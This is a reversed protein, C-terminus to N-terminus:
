KNNIETIHLTERAIMFEEDTPVVLVRVPSGPKSIGAEIGRVLNRDPDLDIGLWSLLECIGARVGPSNEGIGGTFVLLDLGGLAPLLSGISGAVRYNFMELALRSQRHGEAAARELDRFDSSLGSIGLVGSKKNLMELVQGPGLGEKEGLYPIISPDVDGSRTGMMLGSLPTFGMTTDLSRGDLVACLSSGNGLHCTIVRRTQGGQGCIETARGAVYKHSTGHFGYKRIKYDSYYRYPIPYLYAKEPMTQHFATDFVAVQPAHGILSRCVKIGTLNSPNHLPALDLCDELMQLEPQDVLVPQHFNEGGHVVRHGVAAIERVDSIVGRGSGTLIGILSEVSQRHGPLDIELIIEERGAAQHRFRSGPEGIREALGCALVKQSDMDFLKYKLTSSGCNIVLIKL